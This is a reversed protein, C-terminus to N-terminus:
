DSTPTCGGTGTCSSSPRGHRIRSTSSAGGRRTMDAQDLAEFGAALLGITQAQGTPYVSRHMLEDCVRRAGAFDMALTRLWAERYMFLWPDSGNKEAIEENTRVIRLVQGFRGLQLLALVQASLALLHVIVSTPDTLTAIGAEAAEASELAATSEGQLPSCIRTSSAITGPRLRRAQRM